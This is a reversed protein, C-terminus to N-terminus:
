RSPPLMRKLMEMVRQTAGQHARSFEVARRSMQTRENADGLLREAARALSDPSDVRMAAGAHIAREAAEAFNYTHPGLLVPTGVACAEIFNQGGFPLLSGGIFAVDSAAYYAAMEGMSDGLLVQTAERVADGDSRRQFRLGRRGLMAAVEAFRQPHRPVIVILPPADLTELADLIASEEGERTSAALLVSRTGWSTRWARGADILAQPVAADFKVSGTVTVNRAGLAALRAADGATQAAVATLGGVTERALAAFRRYGRFSRESLRGNVLFVPVAREACARVLNPWLETEMILAFRPRFREVFRAMAAPYDYPLYCRTLTDGFLDEGTRRGTPTMHTLLIRHGPYRAQLARVVPEAARTEGVSVAHIWIFPGEPATGVYRAFREAVHEGYGPERRSRWALRARALPLAAYVLATYALRAFSM